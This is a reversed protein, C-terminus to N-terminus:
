QMSTAASRYCSKQLLSSCSICTVCATGYMTSARESNALVCKGSARLRSEVHLAPLVTHAHLGICYFHLMKYVTCRDKQSRFTCRDKQSRFTCRSVLLQLVTDEGSNLASCASPPLVWFCRFSRPLAPKSNPTITSSQISLM